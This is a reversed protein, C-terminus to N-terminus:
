YKYVKICIKVPQCSHIYVIYHVHLWLLGIVHLAKDPTERIISYYVLASCKPKWHASDSDSQGSAM